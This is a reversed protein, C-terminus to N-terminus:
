EYDKLIERLLKKARFVHSKVTNVPFGTVESIEQYSMDYFFYMDLCVHYKHPLLELSTKVAQRTAERLHLEEPSFGEMPIEIEGTFSTYEKKRNVANCAMNYAIRTIWTSFSSEWRFTSLATFVKVFVDQLFDDVDSENRFFSFGLARIRKKYKAVLAAFARTDGELVLKVNKKDISNGENLLSSSIENEFTSYDSNNSNM